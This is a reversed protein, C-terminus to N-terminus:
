RGLPDVSAARGCSYILLRLVRACRGAPRVRTHKPATHIRATSMCWRGSLRMRWTLALWSRPTDLRVPPPNGVQPRPHPNANAKAWFTLTYMREHDTVLFAPLSLLLHWNIEAAESVTCEYGYKGTCARGLASRV